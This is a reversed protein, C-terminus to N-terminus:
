SSVPWRRVASVLHGRMPSRRHGECTLTGVVAHADRNVLYSSPFKRINHPDSSEVPVAGCCHNLAPETLCPDTRCRARLPMATMRYPEMCPGHTGIVM